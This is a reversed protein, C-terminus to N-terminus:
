RLWCCWVHGENMEMGWLRAPEDTLCLNVNPPPLLRLSFVTTTNYGLGLAEDREDMRAM